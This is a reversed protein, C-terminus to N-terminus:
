TQLFAASVLLLIVQVTRFIAFITVKAHFEAVQKPNFLFCHALLFTIEIPSMLM